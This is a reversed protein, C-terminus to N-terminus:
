KNVANSIKNQHPSVLKKSSKINNLLFIKDVVDLNTTKFLPINFEMVHAKFQELLENINKHYRYKRCYLQLIYYLRKEDRKDKGLKIKEMAIKNLIAYNYLLYMLNYIIFKENYVYYKQKYRNITAGILSTDMEGKVVILDIPLYYNIKKKYNIHYCTLLNYSYINNNHLGEVIDKLRITVKIYIDNIIKVFYLNYINDILNPKYLYLTYGDKMMIKIIKDINNKNEFNLLTYLKIIKDHSIKSINLICSDIIKSLNKVINTNSLEKEKYFLYLDLDSTKIVDKPVNKDTELYLKIGYGGGIFNEINKSRLTEQMNSIYEKSKYFIKEGVYEDKLFNNLLIKKKFDGYNMYKQDPYGKIKLENIFNTTM